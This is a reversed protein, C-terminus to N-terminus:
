TTQSINGRLLDVLWMLAEDTRSRESWFASYAFSSLEIPAQCAHVHGSSVLAEALRRPLTVLMDGTLMAAALHSYPLCIQLHRGQMPADGHLLDVLEKGAHMMMIGIHPYALWDDLDIRAKRAAKDHTLRWPHDSAMLCLVDDHFLTCQHLQDSGPLSGALILDIEGMALARPSSKELPVIEIAALPALRRFQDLVPALCAHAGYDTVAIRFRRTLAAASFPALTVLSGLQGMWTMLPNALRSAYHTLQMQGNARILLPDQFVDRLRALARSVAPQTMGLQDAALTVNRTELLKALIRLLNLDMKAPDVAMAPASLSRHPM